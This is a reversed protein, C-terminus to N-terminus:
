CDGSMEMMAISTTTRTSAPRTEAAASVTQSVESSRALRCKSPQLLGCTSLDKLPLGSEMAPCFNSCPMPVHADLVSQSSSSPRASFSAAATPTSSPAGSSAADAQKLMTPSPLFSQVEPM